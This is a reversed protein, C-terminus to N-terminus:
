ELYHTDIIPDYKAGREQRIFTDVEMKYPTGGRAMVSALEEVKNMDDIVVFNSTVRNWLSDVLYNADYTRLCAAYRELDMIYKDKEFPDNLDAMSTGYQRSFMEKLTTGFSCLQVEIGLSEKAIHVIMEACTTKGSKRKGALALIKM